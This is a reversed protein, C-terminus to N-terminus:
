TRGIYSTKTNTIMNREGSNFPSLFETWGALSHSPISNPTTKRRMQKRQRRRMPPHTVTRNLSPFQARGWLHIKTTQFPMPMRSARLLVRPVKLKSRNVKISGPNFQYWDGNDSALSKCSTWSTVHDCLRDLDYNSLSQTQWCKYFRGGSINSNHWHLLVM